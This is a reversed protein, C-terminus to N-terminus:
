PRSLHGQTQIAEFINSQVADDADVTNKLLIYCLRYVRDINRQYIEAFESDTRRLSQNDM